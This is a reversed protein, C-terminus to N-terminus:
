KISYIEVRTYVETGFNGSNGFGFTNVTTQCIHQISYKTSSVITVVTSGISRTNVNDANATYESTGRKIEATNTIDFLLSQHRTVGLAPASWSIFWKGAPLTFQNTALTVDSYPNYVLTNLDRTRNAGSTFTGGDTNQIKNDEIIAVLSNFKAALTPDVPDTLASAIADDIPVPAGTIWNIFKFVAPITM